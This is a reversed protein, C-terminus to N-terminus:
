EVGCKCYIHTVKSIFVDPDSSYDGEIVKVILDQSGDYVDQNMRIKFYETQGANLSYKGSMSGIHLEKQAKTTIALLSLLLTYALAKLRHKTTSPKGM